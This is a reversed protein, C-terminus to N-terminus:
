VFCLIMPFLVFRAKALSLELCTRSSTRQDMIQVTKVSNMPINKLIERFKLSLFDLM